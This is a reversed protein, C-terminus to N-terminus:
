HQARRAAPRVAVAGIKAAAKGSSVRAAAEPEGPRDGDDANAGSRRRLYVSLGVAASLALIGIFQSTSLLHHFVFGRDEDGRLFELFFRAVAYLGLYLLFIQGDYKKGRFRWLLIGFIAFNALSEYVQAPHLPIGLPVGTIEHARPNTFIVSWSSNTPKGYDCGAAFCGLRGVSQGLVIAPSYIDALKWFPLRQALMYWAAFLVAALFGGYFVGGAMLTSTSFIEGPNARYYGWQSVIMLVKAGVLAVVLIWTSLDLLPGTDMGERRGLRVVTYIAAVIALVLLIGYTPLRFSGIQFLFPHL